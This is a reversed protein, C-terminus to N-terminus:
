PSWPLSRWIFYAPLSRGPRCVRASPLAIVCRSECKDQLSKSVAAIKQGEASNLDFLELGEIVKDYEPGLQQELTDAKAILAARASRRCTVTINESRTPARMYASSFETLGSAALLGVVAYLQQAAAIEQDATNEHTLLVRLMRTLEPAPIKQHTQPHAFSRSRDIDPRM